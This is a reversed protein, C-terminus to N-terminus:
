LLLLPIDLLEVALAHALAGMARQDPDKTNCILLRVDHDQVLRPYAELPQAMEVLPVVTEHIDQKRMEVEVAHIYDTPLGLLKERMRAIVDDTPVGSMRGMVEAYREFVDVDEIHALLLTGDDPTVHIAWNVLPDDGTLHDTVVLVRTAATLDKGTPLLLVPIDLQQTLTDVVGGLSHHLDPPSQVHRHTVILQPKITDIRELLTPVDGWDETARLTVLGLHENTDLHALMDQLQSLLHGTADEDLDTVVVASHLDLPAFTFTPKVASRFVSAFDDIRM